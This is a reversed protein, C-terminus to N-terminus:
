IANAHRSSKGHARLAREIERILKKLKRCDAGLDKKEALSSFGTNFYHEFILCLENVAGATAPTVTNALLHRVDEPTIGPAPVELREAIYHRIAACLENTAASGLRGSDLAGLKRAKDLRRWAQPLAQKRLLAARHQENHQRYFRIMLGIFFLVPGAGAVALWVPHGLLSASCAGDADVRAAAIPQIRDDSPQAAESLRNTNGEIQSATIEPGRKVAMPIMQTKITKYTRSKVDYYAVEIPPVQFAGAHTPRLTYIYRCSGDAKVTQVTNDYVTFHSLLNTQLALKPPLMKDFRVNGTLELTLKLPDGVSCTTADLSATVALNSGIAGSFCAPRDLEPPPIVRVTCAPGVAFVAMGLAKGMDDAKVPVSGKFVVPGFVYNGEDKPSYPLAISYEVYDNDDQSTLRRDLAFLARRKNGSMFSSFDFPDSQRTFDNIAFGARNNTILLKNLLQNIDPGNLGSISETTLWPITLVPPADPFLPEMNAFKGTLRKVQVTLTIEFPEDILVTENSSKITLKVLDQKEIDTVSLSPGDATLRRDNVTVVVPGAQFLGAALPTIEYSIVLGSFGQRTVQGNVFSISVNSINQKGLSRIKCNKIVSIDAEALVASGGARVIEDLVIPGAAENPLCSMVM